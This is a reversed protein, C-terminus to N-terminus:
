RGNPFSCSSRTRARRRTRELVLAGQGFYNLALAPFVVCYWAAQIPRRGFHGLDAYLAEAGTVACSCRASRSSPSSSTRSSSASRTTPISPSRAGVARADARRARLGRAGRVLARHDSRLLELRARHRHAARRLAGILIVLTLPLVFSNSAAADRGGPRRGGLAGLDGAHDDRRRLLAGRRPHRARRGMALATALGRQALAM